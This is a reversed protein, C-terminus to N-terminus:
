ENLAVCSYPNMCSSRIAEGCANRNLADAVEQCSAADDAFGHVTIVHDSPNHFKIIGYDASSGIKNEAFFQKPADLSSYSDTTCGACSLLAILIALRNL